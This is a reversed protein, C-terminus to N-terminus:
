NAVSEPRGNDWDQFKGSILNLQPTVTGRIDILVPKSPQGNWISGGLANIAINTTLGGNYSGAVTMKWIPDGVAVNATVGADLLINTATATVVLARQYSESSTGVSTGIVVYSGATLTTGVVTVNNSFASDSSARAATARVPTGATFFRIAGATTSVDTVGQIIEVRSVADPHGPVIAWTNTAGNATGTTSFLDAGFSPLIGVVALAAAM